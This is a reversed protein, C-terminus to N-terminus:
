AAGGLKQRTAVMQKEIEELQEADYSRASPDGQGFAIIEQKRVELAKLEEQLISREESSIKNVGRLGFEKRKEPM